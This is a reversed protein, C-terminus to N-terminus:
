IQLSGHCHKFKKGSGCLCPDNRGVKRDERKFTTTMNDDYSEQSLSDENEEHILQLKLAAEARRQAEVQNVDDETSIEVSSHLKIIDYKLTDLMSSFLDFSERKYEQKPDKQAYGRLHIGQRLYDMASLHERWHNDMTQLIISKEFQALVERGLQNQREQYKETFIANIKEKIQLSQTTHDSDIWKNIPADVKFDDLLTNQLGEIDWQDELSNLPIYADVLDNIVDSRM